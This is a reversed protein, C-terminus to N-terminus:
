RGLKGEVQVVGVQKNRRLSAQSTTVQGQTSEGLDACNPEKENGGVCSVSCRGCAQCQELCQVLWLSCFVTGVMMAGVKQHSSVPHM